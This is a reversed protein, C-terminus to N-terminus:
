SAGSRTASSTWRASPAASRIAAAGCAKLYGTRISKQYGFNRSFRYARVDPREAALATLKQWTTDDSHNDTFVLEYDYRDALQAMVGSVREVLPALNDEENLVPVVLTILPRASAADNM